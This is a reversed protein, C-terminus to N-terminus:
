MKSDPYHFDMSPSFRLNITGDTFDLNNIRLFTPEDLEKIIPDKVVRVVEEGDLKEFSLFSNVPKLNEKKLEVTQTPHFL